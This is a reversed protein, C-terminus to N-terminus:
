GLVVPETLLGINVTYNTGNESQETLMALRYGGGTGAQQFAERSIITRYAGIANIKIWAEVTIPGSINL